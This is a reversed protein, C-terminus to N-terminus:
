FVSESEKNNSTSSNLFIRDAIIVLVELYNIFIKTKSKRSLVM